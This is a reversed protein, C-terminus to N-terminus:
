GIILIKKEYINVSVLVCGFADWYSPLVFLDLTNYFANLQRHDVENKFEFYNNLEQRQVYEECETRTVGTGIFTVKIDEFGEKLLIEVAKILTIQDKIQWVDLIFVPIHDM